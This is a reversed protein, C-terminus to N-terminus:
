KMHLIINAEEGDNVFVYRNHYIDSRLQILSNNEYINIEGNFDDENNDLYSVFCLEENKINCSYEGIKTGFSDLFELTGNNYRYNEKDIVINVPPNTSPEEKKEEKKMLFVIGLTILILLFIFILVVIIKIKKPIKKLKSFFNEEEVEIENNVVVEDSTITNFLDEKSELNIVEDNNTDKKEINDSILTSLDDLAKTNNLEENDRDM